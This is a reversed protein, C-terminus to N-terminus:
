ILNLYSSRRLKRAPKLWDLIGKNLPSFDLHILRDNPNLVYIEERSSVVRIRM